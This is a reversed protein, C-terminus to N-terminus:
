LFVRLHVGGLDTSYHICVMQFHLHCYRQVVINANCLYPNIKTKM